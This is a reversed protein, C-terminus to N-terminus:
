QGFGGKPNFGPPLPPVMGPMAPMVNPAAPVVHFYHVTVDDYAYGDPLDDEYDPVIVTSIYGFMGKSPLSEEGRVALLTVMSSPEQDRRLALVAHPKNKHVVINVLKAGPTAPLTFEGTLPLEELGMYLEPEPAATVPIILKDESM